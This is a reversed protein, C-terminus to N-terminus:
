HTWRWLTGLICGGYEWRRQKLRDLKAITRDVSEPSYLSLIDMWYGKIFMGKVSAAEWNEPPDGKTIFKCILGLSNWDEEKTGSVYIVLQEGHHESKIIIFEVDASRVSLWPQGDLVRWKVTFERAQLM